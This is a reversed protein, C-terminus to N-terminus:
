GLGTGGTPPAGRTQQQIYQQVLKALDNGNEGAGGQMPQMQPMQPAPQSQQQMMDGLLGGISKKKDKGMLETMGPPLDGGGGPPYLTNVDLTQGSQTPGQQPPNLVADLPRGSQTPGQQPAGAMGMAPSTGFSEGNAALNQGLTMKTNIPMGTARMAKITNPGWRGLPIRSAIDAQQAYTAKLPDPAYQSGGFDRWTSGTIQFYGKALDGTRNNIDGIEGQTVNKGGSENRLLAGLLRQTQYPFGLSM